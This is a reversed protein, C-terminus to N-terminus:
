SNKSKGSVYHAVQGDIQAAKRKQSGLYSKQYMMRNLQYTLFPLVHTPLLLRTQSIIDGLTFVWSENCTLLARLNMCCFYPQLLLLYTQHFVLRSKSQPTDVTYQLVM